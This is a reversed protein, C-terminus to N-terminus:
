EIDYDKLCKISMELWFAINGNTNELVEIAKLMNYINKNNNEIIIYKGVSKWIRVLKDYKNPGKSEELEKSKSYLNEPVSKLYRLYEDFSKDVYKKYYKIISCPNNCYEKFIELAKENNLWEIEQNNEIERCFKKKIDHRISPLIHLLDIINEKEDKYNIKPFIYDYRIIIKDSSKCRIKDIDDRRLSMGTSRLYEILRERCDNVRLIDLQLNYSNKKHMNEISIISISTKILEDLSESNVKNVLDEDLYKKIINIIINKIDEISYNYTNKLNENINNKLYDASEKVYNKIYKYKKNIPKNIISNIYDQIDM